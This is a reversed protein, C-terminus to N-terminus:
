DESCILSPSVILKSIETTKKYYLLTNEEVILFSFFLKKLIFTQQIFVENSFDIGTLTYTGVSPERSIITSKHSKVKCYHALLISETSVTSWIKIKKEGPAVLIHCSIRGGVKGCSRTLWVIGPTFFWYLSSGNQDWVVMRTKVKLTVNM